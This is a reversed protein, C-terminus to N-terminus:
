SMNWQSPWCVTAQSSTHEYSYAVCEAKKSESMQALFQIKESPMSGDVALYYALCWVLADYWYRHLDASKSGDGSGGLLRVTKVRMVGADSPVPWFRLM